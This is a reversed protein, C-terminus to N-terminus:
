FMARMGSVVATASVMVRMGSVQNDVRNAAHGDIRVLCRMVRGMGAMVIMKAAGSAALFEDTIGLVIQVLRGIPHHVGRRARNPGARHVLLDPLVLDSSCVDSSWDSIRM